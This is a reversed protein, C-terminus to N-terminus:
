LGLESSSFILKDGVAYTIIIREPTTGYLTKFGLAETALLAEWDHKFFEERLTDLSSEFADKYYYVYELTNGEVFIEFDDFVNSHASIAARVANLLPEAHSEDGLLYEELTLATGETASCLLCTKPAACTAETWDHGLPEGEETHCSLCTKARECTADTWIHGKPEGDTKKCVVCYAAETCTAPMWSHELADGETAHCVSCTKPATCTAESWTHGLAEGETEGCKECTKPQTCTADSWQHKLCCGSLIASLFLASIICIVKKNM